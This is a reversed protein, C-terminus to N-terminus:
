GIAGDLWLWFFVFGALATDALWHVRRERWALPAHFGLEDFLLIIAFLGLAILAPLTQARVVFVGFAILAIALGAHLAQEVRPVSRAKEHLWGDYGALTAYPAFALALWLLRM